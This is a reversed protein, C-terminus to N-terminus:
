GVGMKILNEGVVIGGGGGRIWTNIAIIAVDGSGGVCTLPSWLAV